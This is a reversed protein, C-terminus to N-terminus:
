NGDGASQVRHGQQVHKALQSGLVFPSQHDNVEIMAQAPSVAVSVLLEDLCRDYLQPEPEDGSSSVHSGIPM